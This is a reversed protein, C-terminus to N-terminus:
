LRPQSQVGTLLGGDAPYKMGNSVAERMMRVADLSEPTTLDSEVYHMGDVCNDVSSFLATTNGSLANIIAHTYYATTTKGKTGTIGILTLQREPHDYYRALRSHQTSEQRRLRHARAREHVGFLREDGRVSGHRAQEGARPIESQLERQM